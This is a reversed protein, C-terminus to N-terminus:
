LPIFILTFDELGYSSLTSRSAVLIKSSPLYHHQPKDTIMRIPSHAVDNIHLMQPTSHSCIPWQRDQSQHPQWPVVLGGTESTVKNGHSHCQRPTM